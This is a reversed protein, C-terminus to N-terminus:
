PRRRFGEVADYVVDLGLDIQRRVANLELILRDAWPRHTGDSSTGSSTRTSEGPARSAAKMVAAVSPCGNLTVNGAGDIKPWGNEYLGPIVDPYRDSSSNTACATSISRASTASAIEDPARYTWNSKGRYGYRTSGAHTALNSSCPWSTSVRTSAETAASVAIRSSMGFSTVVEKCM